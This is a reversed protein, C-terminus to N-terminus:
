ATHDPTLRALYLSLNNTDSEADIDDPTALLYAFAIKPSALSSLFISDKLVSRVDIPSAKCM